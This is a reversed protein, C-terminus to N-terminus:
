GRTASILGTTLRSCRRMTTAPTPAQAPASAGSSGRGPSSARLGAVPRRCRGGVGGLPGHGPATRDGRAGGGTGRFRDARDEARHRPRHGIAFPAWGMPTVGAAMNVVIFPASPVLRVILSAWFGNRGVMTIFDNVGQGAYDRLLRGGFRRGLGFGVLSSLFTGLWAYASGAWPGFAVVAAAILIIQPVGLFALLCFGAVAALPAEPGHLGAGLWREVNEGGKLGLAAAGFLFVLGVGGFLLFSVALTRWARADLNTLARLIARM